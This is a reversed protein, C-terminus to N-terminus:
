SSPRRARRSTSAPTPTPSRSAARRERSASVARRRMPPETPSGRADDELVLKSDTSRCRCRTSARSARPASRRRRARRHGHHAPRARPLRALRGSSTASRASRSTPPSCSPAAAPTWATSARGGTRRRRCASTCRAGRRGRAADRRGARTTTGRVISDDVVVLRKGRINEPLPNLKMRVGGGRQKQSPQIFTRGVYRNKVLGDGYPIGSARAYGQAAPIGSEPVPMVMDADVPAQRALEEGMRQRAAHVSQGYLHTDPRAFYVFEFLCLKPDPEAFRHERRVGPRTSSSWRARSRRRARLARRRHRARRDRERAGLRGRAPRARAALLRAPRARRHPARRGHARVLLRGRAAPLVQELALELDRGDSRPEDPRVRARDLEAVLASDTTSDLGTTPDDLMGPLMGLRVALEATNTLNGNHGLAFGADGVSRYVPQANRWHEVRHHLLPQPRHRPPGRAPRAPARRVGPHRPGHGQRRHHDRRREGRHRGVGPGPAPPRLPRPLHPPRGAPRPRLRRLRRLRPELGSSSTPDVGGNKWAGGM